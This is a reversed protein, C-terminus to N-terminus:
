QPLKALEHRYAFIALELRDTVELKRYVSTLHHRVTTESISLREAIEKNKLGDGVLAIVEAERPSITEILAKEEAIASDVPGRSLRSLVDAMMTRDIWVEGAHVKEIAKVLIMKNDAKHLVGMVGMSVAMRLIHPEEIGTLLIIRTKPSAGVLESIIESNLESDLNLDLLAIDPKLQQMIAIADQSDGAEGGVQIQPQDALMARLGQRFLEHYDLLVVQIPTITEPDSM